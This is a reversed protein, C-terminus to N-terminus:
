FCSNTKRFDKRRRNIPKLHKKVQPKSSGLIFGLFITDKENKISDIHATLIESYSLQKPEPQKSESKHIARQNKVDNCGSILIFIIVLYPKM